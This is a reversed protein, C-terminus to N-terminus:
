TCLTMEFVHVVIQAQNTRQRSAASAQLHWSGAHCQSDNLGANLLM